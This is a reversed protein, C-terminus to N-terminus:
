TLSMQSVYCLINSYTLRIRRVATLTNLTLSVWKPSSRSGIAGYTRTQFHKRQGHVHM